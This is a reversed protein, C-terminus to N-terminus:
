MKNNYCNYCFSCDIVQIVFEVRVIDRYFREVRGVLNVLEDYIDSHFPKLIQVPSTVVTGISLNM